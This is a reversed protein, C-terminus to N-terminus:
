CPRTTLANRRPWPGFPDPNANSQVQSWPFHRATAFAITVAPNMHAGSIHGVAYIMTTVVVGFAISVGVHTVQGNSKADVMVSGCGGFVLIFTSIVEAALQLGDGFWALRCSAHSTPTLAM